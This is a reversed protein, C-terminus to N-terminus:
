GQSCGLAAVVCFLIESEYNHLLQDMSETAYSLLIQETSIFIFQNLIKMDEKKKQERLKNVDIVQLQNTSGM